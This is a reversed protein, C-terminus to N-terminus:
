KENQFPIEESKILCQKEFFATGYCLVKEYGKLVEEALHGADQRTYQRKEMQALAKRCDNEMQKEGKSRKVEIIIARRNRRDKVLIDARGAQSFRRM